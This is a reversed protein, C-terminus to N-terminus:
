SQSHNKLIFKIPLEVWATFPNGAKRAPEFKWPKIAQLASQDLIAYGSSKRIKIEGVRGNPLIEAFILVIGEYGRLRAIEPYVPPSNERYLPYAVAPGSHYTQDVTANVPRSQWEPSKEDAASTFKESGEATAQDVAASTTTQLIQINNPTDAPSEIEIAARVPRPHAPATQESCGRTETVVNKKEHDPSVLVTHLVNVDDSAAPAGSLDFAILAAATLHLMVSFFLASLIVTQKHRLNINM